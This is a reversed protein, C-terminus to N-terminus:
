EAIAKVWLLFAKELEDTALMSFVRGFTDHSPIGNPLELFTKLWKKKTQGYLEVETWDDAGSLVACITISIIDNLHHMSKNTMRPDTVCSFHESILVGKKQKLM